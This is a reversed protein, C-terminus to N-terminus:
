IWTEGPLCEPCANRLGSGITAVKPRGGLRLATLPLELCTAQPDQSHPHCGHARLHLAGLRDPPQHTWPFGTSSGGGRSPYSPRIHGLEWWPPPRGTSVLGTGRRLPLVRDGAQAANSAGGGPDDAM